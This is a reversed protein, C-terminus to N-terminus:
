NHLRPDTRESYGRRAQSLRATPSYESRGNLKTRTADPEELPFGTECLGTVYRM